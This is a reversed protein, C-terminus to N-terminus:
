YASRYPPGSRRLSRATGQMEEGPLNLLRQRAKKILEVPLNERTGSLSLLRAIPRQLQFQFFGNVAIVLPFFVLLGIRGQSSTFFANHMKLFDLPTFANLLAITVGGFLNAGLNRLYLSKLKHAPSSPSLKTRSDM